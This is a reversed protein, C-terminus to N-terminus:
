VLSPGVVPVQARRLWAVAAAALFAVSALAFLTGGDGQVEIGLRTLHAGIAGAMLGLTLLAGMAATRPVLLLVIASLEAVGSGWRGWPEAGLQEFIWRSEPAGTFKFVLTQGLIAAALLQLIWSVVATRRPLNPEM